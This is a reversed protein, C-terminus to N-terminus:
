PWIRHPVVLVSFTVTCFKRVMATVKSAEAVKAVPLGPSKVTTAGVLPVAQPAVIGAPVPLEGPFHLMPTCNVGPASPVSDVVSVTVPLGDTGLLPVWGAVKARVVPAVTGAVTVGGIWNIKPDSDTDCAWDCVRGIVTFFRALTGILTPAPVM